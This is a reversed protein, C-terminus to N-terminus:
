FRLVADCCVCTSSFVTDGVRNPPGWANCKKLLELTLPFLFGRMSEIMRPNFSPM